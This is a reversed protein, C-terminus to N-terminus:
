RREGISWAANGPMHQGGMDRIRRAPGMQSGCGCPAFRAALRRRAHGGGRDVQRTRPTDSDHHHREHASSLIAQWHVRERLRAQMM